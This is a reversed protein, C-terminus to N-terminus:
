RNDNTFTLTQMYFRAEEAPAEGQEKASAYQLLVMGTITATMVVEDKLGYFRVVADRADTMTAMDNAVTRIFELETMPFTLTPELPLWGVHGTIEGTREDRNVILRHGLHRWASLKYEKGDIVLAARSIDKQMPPAKEKATAM